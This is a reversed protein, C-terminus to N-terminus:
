RNRLNRFIKVVVLVILLILLLHILGGFTYTFLIGLLWLVFLVCIIGWLMATDGKNEQGSQAYCLAKQFVIPM